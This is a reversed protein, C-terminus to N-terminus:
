RPPMTGGAQQLGAGDVTRAALDYTQYSLGRRSFVKAVKEPSLKEVKLDNLQMKMEIKQAPWNFIVEQPYAVGTERNMQVRRITAQCITKGQADRLVHAIVQPNPADVRTRNFVVVKQIPQGQPSVTQEILEFYQARPPVKLEYKKNEDYHALGLAAVVMDPQFPLPINAGRQLAEYSCHFLYPPNNKSIWYWFEQDNSGIDVAPQGVVKAMLRFNRPKQCMMTGGLGVAQSDAKCDISLNQCLLAEDGKLADANRNLYGVLQKAEPLVSDTPVRVGPDRRHPTLSNCGLVFLLVAVGMGAIISRM